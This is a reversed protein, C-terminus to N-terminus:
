GIKKIDFTENTVYNVVAKIVALTVVIEGFNAYHETGNKCIRVALM